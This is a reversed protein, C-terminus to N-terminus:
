ETEGKGGDPPQYGMNLEQAQETLSHKAALSAPLLNIRERQKVVRYVRAHKLYTQAYNCADSRHDLVVICTDGEWVEYEIEEEFEDDSTANIDSM